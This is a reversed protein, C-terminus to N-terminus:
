VKPLKRYSVGSKPCKVLDLESVPLTDEQTVGVLVQFQGFLKRCGPTSVQRIICANFQLQM